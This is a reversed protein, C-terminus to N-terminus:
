PLSTSTSCFRLDHLRACPRVHLPSRSCTCYLAWPRNRISRAKMIRSDVGLEYWRESRLGSVYVCMMDLRGTSREACFRAVSLCSTLSSDLLVHASQLRLLCGLHADQFMPTKTHMRQEPMWREMPTWMERTFDTSKSLQVSSCNAEMSRQPLPLAFLYQSSLSAGPCTGLSAFISFKMRVFYSPLLHTISPGIGSGLVNLSAASSSTGKFTTRSFAVMSLAPLKRFPDELIPFRGCGGLLCCTSKNPSMSSAAGALGLVVSGATLAAGEFAGAAGGFCVLAPSLKSPISKKPLV